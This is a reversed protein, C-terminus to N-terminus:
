NLLKAKAKIEEIVDLPIGYELDMEKPNNKSKEHSNNRSEAQELNHFWMRVLHRFFESRSSFSTDFLMENIERIMQKPLTVSIVKLM